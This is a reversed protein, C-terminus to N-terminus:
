KSLLTFLQYTNPGLEIKIKEPNGCKSIGEFSFYDLLHFFQPRLFNVITLFLALSTLNRHIQKCHHAPGFRQFILSLHLDLLHHVFIM